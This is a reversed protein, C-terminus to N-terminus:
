SDDWALTMAGVDRVLGGGEGIKCGGDEGIMGSGGDGGGYGLGCGEGGDAGDCYKVGGGGLFSSLVGGGRGLSSSVVGGGGFFDFNKTGLNTEGYSGFFFAAPIVRNKDSIALLQM